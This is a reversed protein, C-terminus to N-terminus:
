IKEDVAIGIAEVLTAYLDLLKESPFESIVDGSDSQLVKVMVRQTQEHISFEIKRDILGMLKNLNEAASEMAEKNQAAKKLAERPAEQHSASGQRRTVVLHAIEATRAHKQGESGATALIPASSSLSRIPRIEM